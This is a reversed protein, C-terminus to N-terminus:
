EEVSDYLLMYATPWSSSENMSSHQSPYGFLARFFKDDVADVNADDFRIWRGRSKILSFYHGYAYGQGIHVIIGKLNYLM